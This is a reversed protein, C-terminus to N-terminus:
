KGLYKDLIRHFETVKTMECMSSTYVTDLEGLMNTCLDKFKPYDVISESM